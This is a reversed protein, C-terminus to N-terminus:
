PLREVGVIIWDERPVGFFINLIERQIRFRDKEKANGWM